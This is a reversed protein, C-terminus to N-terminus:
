YVTQNVERSGNMRSNGVPVLLSPILRVPGLLGSTEIHWPEAKVKPTAGDSHINTRTFKQDDPLNMDGSLRNIWLNMVEIKLENNGPKLLTTIDTRFPPKWLVGASQGNVFVEALERVDGLDLDIFHGQGLWDASVKITKIYTGTGSYYKVGESAYDTWSILEPIKIAEPAGWKPDFKVTWDGNLMLPDALGKVIYKKTHGNSDTLMYDGNQWCQIAATKQNLSRLQGIPLGADKIDSKMVLSNVRESDPRDIFVVFIAGGPPLNVALTTGRNGSQYVIQDKITGDGPNWIQPARNKVRFICEANVPEMTKNRVFYIDSEGAKRHIFDFKEAIENNICTFDPYVSEMAFMEDPTYGCIIKGKGYNNSKITTGNVNGWMKDAVEHFKATRKEYEQMGPIDSPKPAIITAGGAVLEELKLLVALPYFHQDKLMLLRYSMGDPLTIRGDKVSMRNLIVDTNVVDYEYGADVGELLPKDPVNHYLPWFNPAQDGYYYAVDAVYLGQQLLYCCRALYDMFPRAKSWWTIQPNMDLGAHYSRGPYGFEVPSNSFGHYTIRNLGECFARDVLKKLTFPGDRWRRWTTWSEADVYPKGYIHAASAIEKVLFLNRPNGLWFEGRPIGVNGLAKLADVPCTEWFPPGPGGAEAVHELGYEACVESGTKYHSAILLDSVTKKYDYQFRESKISDTITWGLLVPLWSIPDYGNYEKFKDRFKTTWQIGEHLEMSDDDLTKLATGPTKGKTLGLKKIIYEFHFRTAEPELFDIFLGKSNPSAAILEQGNNTCVFRVVRWTGVRPSWVLEGDKCKGTLNLIDSIDPILKDKSDPWALVAIDKYWVPLGNAGKPCSRPVEPFPLKQKVIGPGKIVIDVFFLNKSAMEPSVWSGGSNWGSACVLGLDLDLRAAEKMSHHIADVSERGLFPPGAPVFGNPNIMAQTDWMLLGGLGKDKAEELDRTLGPLSVDGNLWDWYARPRFEKGPNRFGKLLESDQAQSKNCGSFLLVVIFIVIKRM